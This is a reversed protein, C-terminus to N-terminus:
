ERMVKWCWTPLTGAVLSAHGYFWEKRILLAVTTGVNVKCGTYTSNWRSIQKRGALGPREGPCFLRDVCLFQILSVTSNAGFLFHAFQLYDIYVVPSRIEKAFLCCTGIILGSLLRTRFDPSEHKM